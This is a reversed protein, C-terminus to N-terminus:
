GPLLGESSVRMRMARVKTIDAFGADLHAVLLAGDATELLCGMHVCHGINWVSGWSQGDDASVLVMGMRSQLVLLGSSHRLFQPCDLTITTKELPLWSRGKDESRAKWMYASRVSRMFILVDGNALEAAKAVIELASKKAQGNQHECYILFNPM